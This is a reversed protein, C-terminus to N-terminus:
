LTTDLIINEAENAVVFAAPQDYNALVVTTIGLWPYVSLRANVGAFSGAHGFRVHDKKRGMDLLQFGYGYSLTQGRKTEVTVKPTLILQTMEPSLLINQLLAQSFNFLDHCTSYGGGAPSGKVPLESTNSRRPQDTNSEQSYPKRYTYGLALQPSDDAPNYSGTDPMNAVTFIKEKVYDYYSQRTVAEIIAGLVVYGSNSYQYKEGPTFLLPEDKFLDLYDDVMRLDLRKEIYKKNFYSGFGETHTLIQHITVQEAIEKPYKPLHKAITDDFSLRGEQALQAIAVGTFMKDMSGINFITDLTNPIQKEKNAFGSAYELIPKRNEIVLVAGSFADAKSQQEIYDHLKQKKTKDM